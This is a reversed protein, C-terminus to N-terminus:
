AKDNEFVEKAMFDTLDERCRKNRSAADNLVEVYDVMNDTTVKGEQLRKAIAERMLEFALESRRAAEEYYEKTGYVTM